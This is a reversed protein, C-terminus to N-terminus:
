LYKMAIQLAMLIGLGVYLLKSNSEIKVQMVRIDQDHLERSIFTSAQRTLQARFENMGELRRDLDSHAVALAQKNAENMIAIRRELETFKDNFYDKCDVTIKSGCTENEM